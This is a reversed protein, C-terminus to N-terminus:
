FIVALLAVIGFAIFIDKDADDFWVDRVEYKGYSGKVKIVKIRREYHSTLEEPMPSESQSEVM